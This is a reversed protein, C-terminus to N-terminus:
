DFLEDMYGKQLDNYLSKGYKNKMYERDARKKEEQYREMDREIDAESCIFVDQQYTLADKAMDVMVNKM